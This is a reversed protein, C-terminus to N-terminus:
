RFPESDVIGAICIGGIVLPARGAYAVIYFRHLFDESGAGADVTPVDDEFRLVQRLEPIAANVHQTGGLINKGRCQALEPEIGIRGLLSVKFLGGTEDQFDSWIHALKM